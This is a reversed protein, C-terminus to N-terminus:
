SLKERLDYNVDSDMISIMLKAFQPDFQTGMGKWLEQKVIPQDMCSKYSRFSTMTDYCDAVAVIRAIEPIDDGCLGYPYGKGDYREHHYRAGDQIGTAFKMMELFRAGGEPHKRIKEFEEENLDDAKNIIQSSIAIKGIDHLLAAMYILNCEEDSKDLRKALMKAYGAVRFSHGRTYSDKVYISNVFNEINQEADFNQLVDFDQVVTLDM